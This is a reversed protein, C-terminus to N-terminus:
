TKPSLPEPVSEGNARMDEVVDEILDRIGTVAEGPEAALHLLSPFQTCTGVWKADDESWFVRYTYPVHESVPRVGCNTWPRSRNGSRIPRTTATRVCSPHRRM